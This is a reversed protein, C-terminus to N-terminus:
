VESPMAKAIKDRVDKFKHSVKREAALLKRIEDSVVGVLRRSAASAGTTIADMDVVGTTPNTAASLLAVQVLRIAEAVDLREVTESLRCRAHAEALRILSELQRPTASIAKRSMGQKRM